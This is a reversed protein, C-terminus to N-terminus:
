KTMPASAIKAVNRCVHGGVLSHAAAIVEPGRRAPSPALSSPSRRTLPASRCCRPLRSSPRHARLLQLGDRPHLVRHAAMTPADNARRVGLMWQALAPLAGCLTHCPHLSRVSGRSVRAVPRGSIFDKRSSTM